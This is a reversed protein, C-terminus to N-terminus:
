GLEVTQICSIAQNPSVTLTIKNWPTGDIPSVTFPYDAGASKCSWSVPEYKSIASLNWPTIDVTVPTGGPLDFDFTGSRYQQSTTAITLDQSNQYSFPDAAASGGVRTQLTVTGGCEALAVSNIAGAFQAWDPLVYLDAVAANTYPGGTPVAPVPDGVTVIRSLIETNAVSASTPNEHFTYPLEYVKTARWGDTSGWSSNGATYEAETAAEWFDFPSTNLKNKRWGDTEDETTNNSNYTGETSAEWRNFPATYVTTADWGDSNGAVTNGANYAAETTVEWGDYPSSYSIVTRFGDSQDTTLNSRDYMTKTTSTWSGLSGTVRARWGDAEGPSSNSGEYTTRSVSGWTSGSKREYILGSAARQYTTKYGRLFNELHYGKEYSWHYGREFTELHYGAGQTQWNSTGNVDSGVYVGIFRDVDVDFARAIRNARNWSMQNYSSGSATPLGIDDEHMTAPLGTATTANLRSYTPMGDTFFILTDPLVQQTSGDANMFMRVLADEYNTSGSSTLTAIQTKLDAVDADVLMDYYRSWGAGAGLTTATSSFRVVQLKIPTGAFSNVFQTLGNRVSTMNTSGISGSTDVLMGFNGGCRSRTASFTPAVNINTTSLNTERDVGGASLTIKDQGGGAGAIDGGGNITVTVRRGNKIHYTPDNSAAVGSGEDPSAPDLALAVLMVWTPETVGPVWAVGPPPPEVNHLITMQDCTPAASNVSVCAIRVVEFEGRENEVYRYSVTTRVPIPVTDGAIYGTWSLMLANSGGVNVGAPCSAGCPSAGPTTDVDEASALDAPMWLGVNQESRSNNLRGESNDSQRLIVTTAMAMAATLTGTVMIGILLEPLTMGDDRRVARREARMERREARRARFPRRRLQESM